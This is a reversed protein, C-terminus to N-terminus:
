RIRDVFKVVRDDMIVHQKLLPGTLKVGALSTCRSLAVYAQGHAFMGRSLDIIVKDFTKGQAKHVTIAWALRIPLQTFSGKEEKKITGSGEDFVSKYMSWSFPMVEHEVGDDFRVKVTVRNLKSVVGMTGNIWRGRDDNNLMMIRAGVKLTLREDTPLRKGDFKGSLDGVYLKADSKIQGLRQLNIKDAVYNVATLIVHDKINQWGHELVQFTSLKLEDIKNERVSNLIDIFEEDEQRYIKELEMFVLPQFFSQGIEGIAQSSFFYPTEYAMKLAEAEYNTVVPPLQYLDGVMVVQVGGFVGNDGRVTQLFVNVMDLLDARVMSIEDIVLTELSEYLKRKKTRGALRKAQVMTTSPRFGFFSHITEGKVNVAAVGTPAIVAIQKDTRDRFLDLLTSKGTGARGTLFMHSNTNELIDLVEEFQKNIDLKM